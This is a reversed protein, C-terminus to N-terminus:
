AEAGRATLMEQMQQLAIAGLTAVSLGYLFIIMSWARFLQVGPILYFLRGLPTSSALAYLLTLVALGVFFWVQQTRRRLLLIPILLLPILGAYENNLKLGNKGWYGNPLQGVFEPVVLSAIEEANLSYTSSWAYGR